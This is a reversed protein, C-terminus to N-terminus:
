IYNKNLSSIKTFNQFILILTFNKLLEGFGINSDIFAYKQNFFKNTLFTPSDTLGAHSPNGRISAKNFLLMNLHGQSYYGLSISIFVLSIAYKAKLISILVM